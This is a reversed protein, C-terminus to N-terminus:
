FDNFGGIFFGVGLPLPSIFICPLGISQLKLVVHNIEEDNPFITSALTKEQRDRLIGGTRARDSGGTLAKKKCASVLFRM